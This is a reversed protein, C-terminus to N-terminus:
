FSLKPNRNRASRRSSISSTTLTQKKNKLKSARGLRARLGPAPFGRPAHLESSSGTACRAGTSGLPLRMAFLRRRTVKVTGATGTGEHQELKQLGSGWGAGHGPASPICVAFECCAPLMHHLEPPAAADPSQRSMRKQFLSLASYAGIMTCAPCDWIHGRAREYPRHTGGHCIGRGPPFVPPTKIAITAAPHENQSHKSIM